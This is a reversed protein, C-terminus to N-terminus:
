IEILVARCPAGDSDSLNIPAANLLYVGNPVVGNVLDVGDPNVMPVIYLSAKNYLEQARTNFIEGGTAYSEAYEELFKLVVPTTLWENAHHSANYFVETEGRGIEGQGM